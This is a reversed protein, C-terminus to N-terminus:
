MTLEDEIQSVIDKVKSIPIIMVTRFTRMEADDESWKGGLATDSEETVQYDFSM